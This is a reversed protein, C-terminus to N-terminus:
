VAAPTKGTALTAPSALCLQCGIEGGSRGAMEGVLGDIVRKASAAGVVGKLLAGWRAPQDGGKLPLHGAPCLPTALAAGMVVAESGM